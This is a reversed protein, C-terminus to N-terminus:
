KANQGDFYHILDSILRLQQASYGELSMQLQPEMGLLYDASVHFLRALAVVYKTTPISLGSEWANVSSRTVDLKRAVDSQSLGQMERLLRIREYIM